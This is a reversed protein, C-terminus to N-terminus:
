FNQAIKATLRRDVPAKCVMLVNFTTTTATPTKNVVSNSCSSPVVDAFLFNSLPSGLPSRLPSGFLIFFRIGSFPHFISEGREREIYIYIYTYTHFM